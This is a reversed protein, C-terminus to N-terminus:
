PPSPGPGDPDGGEAPRDQAGAAPVDPRGRRLHEQGPDINNCRGDVTRLGWPLTDGVEGAPIQDPGAGVMTGCPTPATGDDAHREGIKIQKLIFRLDSANLNFGQGVPATGQAIAATPATASVGVTAM